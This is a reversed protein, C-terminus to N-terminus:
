NFFFYILVLKKKMKKKNRHRLREQIKERFGVAIGLNEFELPWYLQIQIDLKGEPWGRYVWILSVKRM